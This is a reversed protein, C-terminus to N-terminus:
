PSSSITRKHLHPNKPLPARLLLSGAQFLRTCFIIASAEPPTLLSDLKKVGQRRAQETASFVHIM